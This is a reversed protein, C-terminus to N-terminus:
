LPDFSGALVQREPASSSGTKLIPFRVFGTVGIKRLIERSAANSVDANNGTAYAAVDFTRSRIIRRLKAPSTPSTVLPLTMQNPHVRNRPWSGPTAALTTDQPILLFSAVGWLACWALANDVPGPRTFGTGSRSDASDRGAEDSLTKGTLGSLIAEPTRVSIVAALRSLRNRTFDEGRNRTKMEWRSAGSDYQADKQGFMWHAPEGLAQVMTADLWGANDAEDQVSRREAFLVKWGNPEEPAAIRPSFLGVENDKGKRRVTTTRQIWSQPDTHRTAHDKVTTSVTLADRNLGSLILRPVAEDTWRLRLDQEGADELISTLGYGAFHDLARTYSLEMILDTM